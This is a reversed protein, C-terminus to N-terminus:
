KGVGLMQERFQAATMLPRSLLKAMNAAQVVLEANSDAQKGDAALLNNEFGVRIDGNLAIAAATIRHELPGFACVSWAVAHQLQALLAIMASESAAQQRGVVFLLHHQWM